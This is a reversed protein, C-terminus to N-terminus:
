ILSILFNVDNISNRIEIVKNRNYDFRDKNKKYFKIIEDKNKSLRDIEKIIKKFRVKNDIEDDYSHDIIDEFVDFGYRNKVYSVHQYSALFLPIQYFYLPKITKDTIHIENHFYCSETTINIYSNEYTKYVFVKSWDIEKFDNDFWTTDGEYKSKKIEINEFFKIEDKLDEIETDTLINRYFTLDEGWKEIERKREWGMSLSWDVQDLLNMKKLKVLLSYRHAKITRNHSMFLNEKDEVFNPAGFDLLNKANIQPLFDLSHVNIDTQYKEKYYGLKSNNNVIYIRKTDFNKESFIKILLKFCEETEYEHESLFVIHFNNCEIFCKEVADPLPLKSDNNLITHYIDNIGNIFYYFKENKNSYVSDLKCCNIYNQLNYFYFLGNVVRFKNEGLVNQLNPLPSGNRKDWNDYVLNLVKKIHIM